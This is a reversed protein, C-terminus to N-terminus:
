ESTRNQFSNLWDQADKEHEFMKTPVNPKHFNIYVSGMLRVPLSKVIVAEAVRGLPVNQSSYERAEKTASTRTGAIALIVHPKNQSLEQCINRQEIIDELELEIEDDLIVKFFFNGDFFIEAHKARVKQKYDIALM